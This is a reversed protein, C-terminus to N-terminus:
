SCLEGMINNIKECIQNEHVFERIIDGGGPKRSFSNYKEIDAYLAEILLNMSDTKKIMRYIKSTFDRWDEKRILANLNIKNEINQKSQVLDQILRSKKPNGKQEIQLNERLMDRVATLSKISDLKQIELILDEFDLIDKKRNFNFLEEEDINTPYRSKKDKLLVFRLRSYEQYLENKKFAKITERIKTTGTQSTVQIAVSQNVDGLDIAPFDRSTDININKFEATYILNFLDKILDECSINIDYFSIKNSIKIRTKLFSLFEGIEDLLKKKKM